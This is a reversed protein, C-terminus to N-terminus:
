PTRPSDADGLGLEQPQYQPVTDPSHDTDVRPPEPSQIVPKGEIRNLATNITVADAGLRDVMRQNVKVLSDLARRTEYFAIGLGIFMLGLIWITVDTRWAEWMRKDAQRAQQVCDSM